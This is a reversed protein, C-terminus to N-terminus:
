GPATHILRVFGYVNLNTLCLASIRASLNPVIFSLVDFVFVWTLLFHRTTILRLISLERLRGADISTHM